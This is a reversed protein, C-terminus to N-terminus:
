PTALTLRGPEFPLVRAVPSPSPFGFQADVVLIRGRALDATTLTRNAPTPTIAVLRATLWDSSLEWTSIQRGFNQVVTLTDGRLVIGDATTVAPGDRHVERIQKDALGIRWIQGTTGQTVLLYQRDPTSVIGGLDFDNLAPTLTITGSVDLWPEIGWTGNASESVRWIIPLSSDTVFVSGDPGVWADNLFSGALGSPLEAVLQGAPDVIRVEASPGGAVFVRGARDVAIGRGNDGARPGVWVDLRGSGLDGRYITGDRNTASVYVLGASEDVGIGELYVGVEPLDYTDDRASAYSATTAVSVSIAGAAAFAATLIVLSRHRPMNM